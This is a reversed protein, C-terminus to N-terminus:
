ARMAKQQEYLKEIDIKQRKKPRGPDPSGTAAAASWKVGLVSAGVACGVLADWWHNDPREPRIKWEDVTRGRGETRIRYEAVLHDAFLQHERPDEGFLQLCGAGGAPTTLRQAVFSKWHNPDFVALRGRGGGTVPTIRWNVGIREGPKRVWNSMPVGGAGIAYGKSPMVTAGHLSQRCFQHVTDTLWGSDILCLDVRMEGGQQRPYARGVVEAAAAKLGAYVRASEDHMTLEPLDALSPRADSAAFYSRNQRPYTGYDVVAGGFSETWGCVVWYLIKAGVDIFATLRTVDPPAVGKPTRTVRGAVEAAVLDEIGGDIDAAVPDNQYEAMFSRRDRCFLHMAHQVASVEGPLKRAAWSAEACEDLTARRARYYANAEGFNPPEKLACRRYVEFYADWAALNKPMTRMMRTREGRWLPHAARDLIRDIFDGKAIVTCPMVAAITKGPGAMGLVDASVLQERTANQTKSHASEHTQPDDILVLDPRISEGTTLTLLSGRIGDGTLGSSSVVGGATPVMGDARLRWSKPWNSPPPVTPLVIRDGSWEIMTPEGGCVQGAARNAIGGLAVAPWAIEPFDAAYSPLFRIYTKLAAITDDAKETNAGIVFAYRCHGYSIAWLAAMRVRTTKGNGRPEAFAYLAGQFVAEEIREVARLQDASWALSFAEPNYTSCFAKLSKRCRARRKVDVIDPIGGVDRGKATQQRQREGAREKHREYDKRRESM